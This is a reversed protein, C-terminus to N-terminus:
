LMGAATVVDASRSAPVVEVPVRYRELATAMESADSCAPILLRTPYALEGRWGLTYEVVRGWLAVQGLVRHVAEPSNRGVLYVQAEHPTPVAYIGCSCSDEPAHHASACAAAMPRGPLWVEDHLTSCLRLRADVRWVRWGVIPEVLDPLDPQSQSASM